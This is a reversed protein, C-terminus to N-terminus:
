LMQALVAGFALRYEVLHSWIGKQLLYFINLPFYDAFSM